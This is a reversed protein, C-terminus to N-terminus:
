KGADKNTKSNKSKTSTSKSTNSSKASTTKNKTTTKKKTANSTTEKPAVEEKINEKVEEKKDIIIDANNIAKEELENTAEKDVLADENQQIGKEKALRKEEKAKQKAEKRAKRREQREKRLEARQEKTTARKDKAEQKLVEKDVKIAEVDTNEITNLYFEELTGNQLIEDVTKVCQIQGKKIIGIRDCIREVVDIIHSSFFVINGEKAHLKMCEKVQFISNPDLGTLPEDLIWVKPNHILASMIAIKQKMGHSYTKMQNDFAGELEFLKVYKQMRENRDQESVEYIDAIYNIYERGTLKEYLAYHDPVFGIQKKAEISQLDADYGCVEISGGTIPQIGVISKIITSKGAGNPGLFGFIEGAHVELNADKVAFVNSSGYRKTFDHLILKDVNEMHLPESMSRGDLKSMLALEEMKYKKKRANMEVMLDVYNYAQEYIFWMGAAALIYVLYFLVQYVPYFIFQLNGIWFTLTYNRLDEAWKGLKDAIFDSNTFFFDCDGYNTFWANIILIAVFYVTFAIASYIFERLKPREYVKLGVVLLPMFFAMYHNNWFRIIEYSLMNGTTNPMVMALFAGLVNIFFTFYFLKKWKFILCLPVIYMATHCLHIPWQLPNLWTEFKASCMFTILAGLSMFLLTFKITKQDKNKFAFYVVLPIIIGFYIFIRHWQSLDKVEDDITSYGFFLQPVWAPMTALLMGFLCLFFKIYDKWNWKETIYNKFWVYFCYFISIGLELCMLLARFSFTEMAGNGCVGIISYNLLGINLLVVTTAFFKVFNTTARFKFFPYLALLLITAYMFWVSLTSLATLVPSDFLNTQLHIIGNLAENGSMYRFFFVIILSFSFVKLFTDESIKGALKKRFIFYAGILSLPLLLAILYYYVLM